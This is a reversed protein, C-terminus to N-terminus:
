GVMSSMTPCSARSARCACWAYGEDLGAISVSGKAMLEDHFHKGRSSCFYIAGEGALMVDIIRSQPAGDLGITSMTTDILRRLEDLCDQACEMPRTDGAM